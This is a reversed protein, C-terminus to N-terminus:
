SVGNVRPLLCCVSDQSKDGREVVRAMGVGHETEKCRMDRTGSDFKKFPYITHTHSPAISGHRHCAHTEDCFEFLYRALLLYLSVENSNSLYERRWRRSARCKVRMCECIARANRKFIAGRECQNEYAAWHSSPWLTHEHTNSKERAM